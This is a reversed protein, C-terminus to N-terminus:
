GAALRPQTPRAYFGEGMERLEVIVGPIQEEPVYRHM